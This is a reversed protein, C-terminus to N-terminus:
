DLKCELEMQKIITFLEEGNEAILEVATDSEVIRLVIESKGDYVFYYIATAHLQPYDEVDFISISNSDAYHYIDEITTKWADDTALLFYGSLYYDDDSKEETDKKTEKDVVYFIGNATKLTLDKSKLTVVIRDGTDVNYAFSSKSGCATLTFLTICMLLMMTIISIIKKKKM